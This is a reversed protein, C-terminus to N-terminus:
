PASENLPATANRQWREAAASIDSSWQDYSKACEAEERVMADPDDDDEVTASSSSAYFKKWGTYAGYSNKGLVEGKVTVTNKCKVVNRFQTADPDKQHDRVYQEAARITSDTSDCAAVSGLCILTASAFLISRM